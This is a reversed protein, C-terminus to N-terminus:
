LTVLFPCRKKLLACHEIEDDANPSEDVDDIAHCVRLFSSFEQTNEPMMAGSGLFKITATPKMWPSAIRLLQQLLLIGKDQTV